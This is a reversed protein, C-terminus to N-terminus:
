IEDQDFVAPNPSPETEPESKAAEAVPMSPQLKTRANAVADQVKELASSFQELRHDCYDDVEHQRRRAQSEAQEVM